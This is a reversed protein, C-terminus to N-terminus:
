SLSIKTTRSTWFIRRKWIDFKNYNESRRGVGEFDRKRGHFPGNVRSQLRMPERFQEMWNYHM